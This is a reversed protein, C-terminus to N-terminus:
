QLIIVRNYFYSFDSPLKFITDFKYFHQHFLVLDLTIYTSTRKKLQGM